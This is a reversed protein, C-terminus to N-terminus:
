VPLFIVRYFFPSVFYVGGGVAVSVDTNTYVSGDAMEIELRFAIFSPIPLTSAGAANYADVFAQTPIAISARPLGNPSLEFESSDITYALQEAIETGDDDAIPELLDQDAYLRVYARIEKFDPVTSGNGRQVELTLNFTNNNPNTLSVLDGPGEITRLIVGTETDVSDYVQDILVDSDSCSSFGILIGVLVIKVINRMRKM